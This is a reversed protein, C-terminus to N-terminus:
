LTNERVGIANFDEEEEIVVCIYPTHPTVLGWQGHM